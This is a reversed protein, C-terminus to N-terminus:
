LASNGSYTWVMESDADDVDTVYDDLNITAFTSGESISQDPIDSVIPTDSVATVTFTAGDEDYLGSPDTARFTVTESGNWDTGPTTITAVRDTIDVTLETNGSYTWVMESDANDVDSVYDDLSITTFSSGEPITQGPIDSVVPTDNVATVTFTAADEDYLSDPDTARFTVAESGNWDAGPTSITAIRDTIDVTLETNGSYTWVMESDADDVDSVYDDLNITAFTEGESISQDPIDSVIPMDSVASVTFTAADEDYLSGPDTARFAITESGNWDTGPTSITAVRDTIDVTLASNGSYTWVMESDADDVDSVYDDLNIAAFSSGEAIIQDPIDTVVPTDNVASVTFTAGDDDYLSGPDTARFTVTESGNWDIGPTTITAVRDTIDVTLASNGSYTWVMESDADDVDSVYDDLNITAFTSGEPVTQDPIDSVVPTDNVASVTFTAGDEDYLSGPDTARFTITESGNWDVGPTTITAIRDTIDVTLQTNGSYTWVMESDADDVDIVYDDLNITAFTEGESISQDPIDSVVPAQNGVETVTIEVVETDVLAGDSAMFTVDYVGAQTFDPTFVFYGAGNGSDIFVANVPVDLTDLVILDLDPDSAHIRFELTDGEVVMQAGISDLGPALNVHNVTIQVVESDALSGDSAIFTVNFAGSQTYDPTFVFSGAGNGSDVFVANVPVNLTDLIISDADLDTAHIRFELTDGEDVAQPGISDLVPANNGFETVTIQVVESDVGGLTDNALFTVNYIGSQTFDPTFVFSGAGNGSDVFVANLPVNATDLVILDMDPDSAHIRFELTDGEALTKPSMSDLVPPRNVNTVTIEVVESDILAGDTAAFTVLYIGVQDYNPAFTFTGAGNGSDSYTSNAPNNRVFLAPISGDPDNAHFRFQLTEAEAVSKPGSSDLAPAQNGAEIVTIQVVESDALDSDRAKFTVYYIGSQTYDPDFEFIGKGNGSDTFSSNVPRNEASLILSDGDPDSATVFFGIHAGELVSRPGISSLVPERNVHDVTISVVESDALSGDSAIFTVGYLGSQDYDPTFVFSGAGNGSDIFVANLPVNLTDLIISDLDIDTAHIRFELTSGESVSRAGISDLVPVDNIGTVTFAGADEDYLSSPDTARFTIPESGTWDLDPPSITAVRDTIDVTLETNGSYTWVMDSDAHDVDSVYDDLSITVFTSGESITQDPIDSVVPTDNVATVTFTAADEDYLGGPDTARFTIPESGNWDSGPTSITAVRDTIDVSLETNGSYTWVMDSDADDVDSVYDDLSITAFSSGEPITEDPIDSVVPTDNVATVTFTAGDEDYLSDPDMARFTVTESDNWDLDPVTITAVRDTIDVTLETNGSYTWVMDSDADDVDSVYDDLNITAFM